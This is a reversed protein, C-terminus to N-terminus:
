RQPNKLLCEGKRNGTHCIGGGQLLLCPRLIVQTPGMARCSDCLWTHVGKLSEQSDPVLHIGARRESNLHDPLLSPPFHLSIILSLHSPPRHPCPISLASPAPASSSTPGPTTADVQLGLVQPFPLLFMLELDAEAVCFIHPSRDVHLGQFSSHWSTYHNSGTARILFFFFM